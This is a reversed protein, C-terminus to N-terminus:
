KPIFQSLIFKSMCICVDSQQCHKDRHQRLHMEIIPSKVPACYIRYVCESFELKLVWEVRVLVVFESLNNWAYNFYCKKKCGGRRKFCKWAEREMTGRINGSSLARM